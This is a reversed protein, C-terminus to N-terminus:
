SQKVTETKIDNILKTLHDADGLRLVPYCLYLLKGAQTDIIHVIDYGANLLDNLSAIRETNTQRTNKDCLELLFCVDPNESERSILHLLNGVNTDIINNMTYGTKLLDNLNDICEANAQETGDLQCLFVM